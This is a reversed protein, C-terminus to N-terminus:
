STRSPRDGGELRAIWGGPRLAALAGDFGRHLDWASFFMSPVDVSQPEGLGDLLGMEDAVSLATLDQLLALRGVLEHFIEPPSIAGGEAAPLPAIFPQTASGTRETSM